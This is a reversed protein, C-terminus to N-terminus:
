APVDVYRDAKIKLSIQGLIDSKPGSETDGVTIRFNLFVLRFTSVFIASGFSGAKNKSLQNNM